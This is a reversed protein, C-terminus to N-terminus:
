IVWFKLLFNGKAPKMRESFIKLKLGLWAKIHKTRRKLWDKKRWGEKIWLSYKECYKNNPRTKRYGEAQRGKQTTRKNFIIESKGAKRENTENQRQSLMISNNWFKKWRAKNEHFTNKKYRKNSSKSPQRGTWVHLKEYKDVPFFVNNPCINCARSTSLYIDLM